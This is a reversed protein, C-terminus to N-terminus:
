RVYSKGKHNAHLTMKIEFCSGHQKSIDAAAAVHNRRAESIGQMEPAGDQRV